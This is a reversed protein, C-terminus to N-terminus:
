QDQAIPPSAPIVKASSCADIRSAKELMLQQYVTSPPYLPVTSESIFVFKQNLVDSLARRILALQALGVSAPRAPIQFGGVELYRNLGASRM